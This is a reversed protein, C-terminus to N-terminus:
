HGNTAALHTEACVPQSIIFVVPEIEAVKQGSVFCEVLGVFVCNRHRVTTVLRVKQHKPLVPALFRAAVKGLRPRGRYGANWAWIALSQGAAEILLTGPFIPDSPFHVQFVWHGAVDIECVLGEDNVETVRDIQLMQKVPLFM